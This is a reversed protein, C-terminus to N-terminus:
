IIALVLIKGDRKIELTPEIFNSIIDCANQSNQEPQPIPQMVAPATVITHEKDIHAKINGDPVQSSCLPCIPSPEKHQLACHENLAEPSTYIQECFPCPYSKATVDEHFRYFFLNINKIM